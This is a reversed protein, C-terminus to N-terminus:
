RRVEFGLSENLIGPGHCEETRATGYGYFHAMPDHHRAEKRTREVWRRAGQHRKFPGLLLGYRPGNRVSVYYFGRRRDVELRRLKRGFWRRPGVRGPLRQMM